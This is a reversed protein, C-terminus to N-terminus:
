GTMGNGVVINEDSRRLRGAADAVDLAGETMMAHVQFVLEPTLEDKAHERIFNITTYNNLIMRQSKNRPNIKKRLMEKAVERTTAAGEMQSSAIAEEMISSILYLEQTVKDDPFIKSTGWSGGFNMDFEHCQRWMRNTLGFHLDAFGPIQVDPQSRSYKVICWLDKPTLGLPQSRYKVDSWYLYEDNIKSIVEVVLPYGDSAMIQKRNQREQDTITPPSEIM